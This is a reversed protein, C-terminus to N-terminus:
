SLTVLPGVAPVHVSIRPGGVSWSAPGGGEGGRTRLGGEGGRTQIARGVICAENLWQIKEVRMHWISIQSQMTIFLFCIEFVILSAYLFLRIILITKLSVSNHLNKRKPCRGQLPRHGICECVPFKRRRWGDMWGDM